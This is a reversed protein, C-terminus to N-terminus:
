DYTLVIWYKNRVFASILESATATNNNVNNIFNLYLRTLKM